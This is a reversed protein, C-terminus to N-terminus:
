KRILKPTFLLNNIRKRPYKKMLAKEYAVMQEKVQRDDVLITPNILTAAYISIFNRIAPDFPGFFFKDTTATFEYLDTGTSSEGKYLTYYILDMLDPFSLRLYDLRNSLGGTYAATYDVDLEFYKIATNSPSGVTSATDWDWGLSNWGVAFATGDFQTTAVKYYYNSADAGWKLTFSTLNTINQTYHWANMAGHSSYSSFDFNTSFTRALTARDSVSTGVVIDYSLSGAGEKKIFLDDTINTGDLTAAWNTDNDSDLSDIMQSSTSNKGLVFLRWGTQNAEVSFLKTDGFVLDQREYIATIPRYEFADDNLTEDDFKLYLPEGFDEPLSYTQQTSDFYFNYKKEQSPIGYKSFVYESARNIARIARADTLNQNRCYDKIDPIIDSLSISAPM